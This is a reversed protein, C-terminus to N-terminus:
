QPPAARLGLAAVIAPDFARSREDAVLGMGDFLNWFAWPMGAAECAERVDRIYRARDPDSAAVYREDTRLAGFEGLLVRDRAVGHEDAWNKVRDLYRAIFQKDPRANFYEDLVRRITAGIENKETASTAHDAAMRAAVATLTKEKTSMGAPWPIANLYRYMPETSMWPAGQHSFVYPEYFHFTYLINSDDLQRPDINLLGDIMAGCAGCAVLTLGPAAARAARTLELQMPPWESSTCSQPPENLPEFCVRTPDFRSLRAALERVLGIYSKFLPATRTTVLNGPNWYHTASNPHLNVIASLDQANSLEVAALLERVLTEHRAGTTALFPGPDVPIRVFDIGSSRLAALDARTPIARDLQFPPWDYENRPAPFERTLSFWPWLNMGRRLRISARPVAAAKAAIAPATLLSAAITTVVRRRTLARHRVRTM